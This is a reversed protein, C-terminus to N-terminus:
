ALFSGREDLGFDTSGSDLFLVALFILQVKDHNWASLILPSEIRNYKFINESYLKM